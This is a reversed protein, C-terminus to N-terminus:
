NSGDAAKHLFSNMRTDTLGPPSQARKHAVAEKMGCLSLFDCTFCRLKGEREKRPGERFKRERIDYATESVARKSKEITKRNLPIILEAKENPGSDLYRVMGQEPEYELESKTAVAYIGVQLAMEEEDLKKADTREDGSKFDILTVRPPDDQRVIDIAGAVLAGGEGDPYEVLTEFSKEPEFRLDRLESVYKGVYDAVVRLG